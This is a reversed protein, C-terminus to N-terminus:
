SRAGQRLETVIETGIGKQGTDKKHMTKVIADTGARSKEILKQMKATMVLVQALLTTGFQAVEGNNHKKRM